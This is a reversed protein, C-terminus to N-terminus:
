IRHKITSVMFYCVAERITRYKGPYQRLMAEWIDDYGFQRNNKALVRVQNYISLGLEELEPLAPLDNASCAKIGKDTATAWTKEDKTVIKVLGRAVLAAVDKNDTKLYYRGSFVITSLLTM